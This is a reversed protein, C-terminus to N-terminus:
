DPGVPYIQHTPDFWLVEFCDVIRYGWLRRMNGLRFRFIVDSYREIEHLRSLAEECILGTDMNHHLKHTSGSSLKDIEGWTLKEWHELKPFITEAWDEESWQRDVGWSWCADCDPMESSWRMTMGFISDPNAGQRPSRKAPNIGARAALEPLTEVLRASKAAERLKRVSERALRAERKSM